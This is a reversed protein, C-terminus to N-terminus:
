PQFHELMMRSVPILAEGLALIEAPTRWALKAYEEGPREVAAADLELRYCADYSRTVADYALLMPAVREREASLATEERLEQLLCGILDMAHWEASEGEAHMPPAASGSPALEWHGPYLHVGAARQAILARGDRVLLGSVGLSCVGTEVGARRVALQRYRARRCIIVGRQPDIKQVHLIQGDFLGPEERCLAEWARDVQAALPAPLSFEGRYEATLSHAPWCAHENPHMWAM